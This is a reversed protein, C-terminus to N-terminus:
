SAKAYEMRGSLLSEVTSEVRRQSPNDGLEHLSGWSLGLSFESLMPIAHGPPTVNMLSQLRQCFEYANKAPVSCVAEDYVPAMLIAGTEQFLKTDWAATMVVKLIDAATGQVTFNVAQREQRSREWGNRSRIDATLHRLNGYATKVFGYRKGFSIVEEQWPALRPYAQFVTTMLGECFRVPMGLNMALTSAQGVYIILFNVMKAYKRCLEAIAKEEDGGKGKRLAVFEEYSIKGISMGHSRFIEAAFSSATVSHVDKVIPHVMGDEDTRFGGGTYCDILVPDRAESGAIRLEQGNFDATIIVHDDYRPLYIERTKGKKVQLMNPNSGTPRRTVTGCNRVGPHIMGDRPHVWLPYPNYYMSFLKMQDKVESLTELVERKWPAGETDEAIALKVAKRGTAPSGELGLESRTSGRQVKTRLRVPLALKCYLLEAIQLPSDLNLEDGEKVTKGGGMFPQCYAKLAAYEPGERKKMGVMAPGLLESFPGAAPFGRLATLLLNVQPKTVAKLRFESPIELTDLVKNIQGPTGQFEPLIETEKYPKYVAAAAWKLKRDESRALLQLDNYKGSAQEIRRLNHGDAAALAEGAAPNEVTCHETLLERIRLMGETIVKRGYTALEGMKAFDIRVGAEFAMNLVHVPARESAWYFDWTGELKLILYFTKFLHATVLSDDCGYHLVEKGSVQSMDEAGAASLTDKYSAQNYNLWSKSMQKLGSEGDEDVYSSMIQTDCPKELQLGLQLKTIQEEFSANQVLLPKGTGDITELFDKVVSKDVNATDRHNVSIYVTHQLHRGYNISAGTIESSLVDVYSGRAASAASMADNFAAHKLSDVTEYDFSFFPTEDLHDLFHDICVGANEATLLTFQPFFDVYKEIFAPCEMEDLMAEIRKRNPVRVHYKPRVLTSGRFQFCVEPALTALQYCLKADAINAYVHGLTKDKTVNLCDEVAEFDGTKFCQDIERMGDHGFESVLHEWSKPGFRYVGPYGDSKDGCLAKYLVILDHPVAQGDADQYAELQPQNRLFIVTREDSLQLLDADVTHVMKNHDKLGQCILAILDDAEVGAAHVCTVGMYMLFSKAVDELRKLQAVLDPDRKGKDEDRKKKYEPFLMTRYASGGDFVAIIDVPSVHELMPHFYEELWNQFGHAASNIVKGAANARADPDVGRHYSHMLLGRVDLIIKPTLM